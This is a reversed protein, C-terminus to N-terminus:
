WMDNGSYANLDLVDELEKADLMSQSEVIKLAEEKTKPVNLTTPNRSKFGYTFRIPKKTEKIFKKLTEKNLTGHYFSMNLM